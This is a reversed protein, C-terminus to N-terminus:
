FEISVDVIQGPKVENELYKSTEGFKDGNTFIFKTKNTWTESGENKYTWTKVFKRGAVVTFNDKFSEKIFKAKFIPRDRRAGYISSDVISSQIV